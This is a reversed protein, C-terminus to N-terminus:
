ADKLRFTPSTGSVSFDTLGNWITTATQLDRNKVWKVHGDMFGYNGGDFHRVGGNVLNTALGPGGCVPLTRDLGTADGAGAGGCGNTRFRATSNVNPGTTASGGDGIMITVVPNNCAPLTQGGDGANKNLFYDTFGPQSPDAVPPNPESPCQFIQTSKLYPQIGDAWGVPMGAVQTASTNVVSMPLHEDYDQIYQTFGLGINKMNSQCSARRANERARGFVPFLISALIAIIAIVVLLEILTFAANRKKNSSHDNM